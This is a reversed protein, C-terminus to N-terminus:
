AKRGLQAIHFISPRSIRALLQLTPEIYDPGHPRRTGRANVLGSMIKQNAWGRCECPTSFLIADGENAGSGSEWFRRLKASISATMDALSPVVRVGPMACGAQKLRCTAIYGAARM